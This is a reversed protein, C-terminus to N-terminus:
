LSSVTEAAGVVAPVDVVAVARVAVVKDAAAVAV